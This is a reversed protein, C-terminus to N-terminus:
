LFFSIGQLNLVTQDPIILRSVLRLSKNTSKLVDRREYTLVEYAPNDGRNLYLVVCNSITHRGSKSDEIVVNSVLHRTRTPPNEAWAYGTEERKVRLELTRMDADFYGNEELVASGSGKEKTFRSAMRYTIKEDLLELWEKYRRNDQLLAEKYYFQLIELYAQPNM